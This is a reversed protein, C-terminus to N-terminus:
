QLRVAVVGCSIAPLRFRVAPGELDVPAPRVSVARRDDLTNRATLAGPAVLQLTAKRPTGSTLTAHVMVSDDPPNVAKFCLQRGDDSRSAVLNLQGPDGRLAVRNPL